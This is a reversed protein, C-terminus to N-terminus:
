IEWVDKFLDFPTLSSYQRYFWNINRFDDAMKMFQTKNNSQQHMDRYILVSLTAGSCINITQKIPKLLTESLDNLLLVLTNVDNLIGHSWFFFELIFDSILTSKGFVVRKRRIKQKDVRLNVLSKEIFHQM